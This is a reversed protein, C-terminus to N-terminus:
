NCCGLIVGDSTPCCDGTLGKAKCKENASCDSSSKGTDFTSSPSTPASVPASHSSSSDSKESVSSPHKVKTKYGPEKGGGKGPYLHNFDHLLFLAAGGIILVAAIIPVALLLFKRRKEERTLTGEKLYYTDKEDFDDGQGELSGYDVQGDPM